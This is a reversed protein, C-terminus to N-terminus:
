MVLAFERGAGAGGWVLLLLISNFWLRSIVLGGGLISIEGTGSGDGGCRADGGALAAPGVM